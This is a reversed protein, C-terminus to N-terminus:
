CVEGVAQLVVQWQWTEMNPSNPTTFNGHNEGFTATTKEMLQQPKICPNGHNEGNHSFWTLEKETWSLNLSFEWSLSSNLLKAIQVDSGKSKQPSGFNFWYLYFVLCVFMSKCNAIPM